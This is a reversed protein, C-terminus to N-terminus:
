INVHSWRKKTKILSINSQCVNYIKAIDITSMGDRIMKKIEKLAEYNGWFCMYFRELKEIDQM